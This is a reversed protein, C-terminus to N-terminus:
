RTFLINAIKSRTYAIDWKYNYMFHFDDFDIAANYRFLGVGQHANSSVTIIRPNDAARLLKWLHYTLYFHGLHNVGMTMEFDDKTVGRTYKVIGANNILIDIKECNEIVRLSFEEISLKDGLDLPFYIVKCDKNKNM